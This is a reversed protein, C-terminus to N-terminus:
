STKFSLLKYVVHSISLLLFFILTILRKLVPVMEKTILVRDGSQLKDANSLFKNLFTVARMSCSSMNIKQTLNILKNNKDTMIKIGKQKIRHRNKM